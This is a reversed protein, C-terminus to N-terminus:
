SYYSDGWGVEFVGNCGGCRMSAGGKPLPARANCQPCVAYRPGWSTPALSRRPRPVVSWTGSPRTAIELISKPVNVMRQHVNLVADTATVRVVSYWAGRRLPVNAEARLRAYQKAAMGAM